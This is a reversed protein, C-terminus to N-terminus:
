RDRLRPLLREVVDRLPGPEGALVADLLDAPVPRPDIEHMRVVCEAIAETAIREADPADDLALALDYLVVALQDVLVDDRDPRPPTRPAEVGEARQGLVALAAVLGAM